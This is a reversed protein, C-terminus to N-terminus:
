SLGFKRFLALELYKQRSEFKNKDTLVHKIEEILTWDFSKVKHCGIKKSLQPNWKNCFFGSLGFKEFIAHLLPKEQYDSDDKERVVPRVEERLAENSLKINICSIETSNDTKLIM